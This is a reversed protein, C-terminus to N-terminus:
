LRGDPLRYRARRDPSEREVEGRAVMAKLHHSVTGWPLGTARAVDAVGLGHGARLASQIRQRTAKSRHYPGRRTGPEM